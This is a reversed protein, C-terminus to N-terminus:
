ELGVKIQIVFMGGIMDEINTGYSIFNGNFAVPEWIPSFDSKKELYEKLVRLTIKSTM